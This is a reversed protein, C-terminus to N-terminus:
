QVPIQTDLPTVLKTWFLLKVSHSFECHFIGAHLTNFVQPEFSSIDYKGCNEGTFKPSGGPDDAPPGKWHTGRIRSCKMCNWTNHKSFRNRGSSRTQRSPESASSDDDLTSLTGLAITMLKRISCFLNKKSDAPNNFSLPQVEFRDCPFIDTLVRPLCIGMYCQGRSKSDDKVSFKQVSSLSTLSMNDLFNKRFSRNKYDSFSFPVQNDTNLLGKQNKQLSNGLLTEAVFIDTLEDDPYMPHRNIRSSKLSRLMAYGMMDQHSLRGSLSGAPSVAVRDSPTNGVFFCVGDRAFSSSTCFNRVCFTEELQVAGHEENNERTM